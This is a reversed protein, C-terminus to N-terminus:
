CPYQHFVLITMSRVASFITSMKKENQRAIDQVAKDLSDIDINSSAQKDM